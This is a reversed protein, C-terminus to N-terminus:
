QYGCTNTVLVGVAAWVGRTGGVAVRWGGGVCLGDGVSGCGVRDAAVRTGRGECAGVVVAAGDGVAGGGSGVSGPSEFPEPPWIWQAYGGQPESPHAAPGVVSNRWSSLCSVIPFVGSPLGFRLSRRWRSPIMATTLRMREVSASLPAWLRLISRLM